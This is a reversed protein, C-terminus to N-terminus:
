VNFTMKEIRTTSTSVDIVESTVVISGDSNKTPGPSSGQLSWVRHIGLRQRACSM